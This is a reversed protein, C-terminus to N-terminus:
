FRFILDLGVQTSNNEPEYYGNDVESDDVYWYQIFPQITVDWVKGVHRLGVTGRLGYGSGFEQSNRIPVYGDGFLDTRQLGYLLFDFEAGLGLYWRDGLTQGREYGIPLYFYNAHREYGAPDHSSDDQLYRYGLGAYVHNSSKSDHWLCGWLGRVNALVDTNGDITYPTGDMLAGDYDVSGAALGGEFRLVTDRSVSAKSFSTAAFVVGYLFGDEEMVGPEEYHFSSIEPGISWGSAFLADVPGEAAQSEPMLVGLAHGGTVGLICCIALVYARM